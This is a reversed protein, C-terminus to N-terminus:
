YPIQDERPLGGHQLEGESSQPSCDRTSTRHKRRRQSRLMIAVWVEAPTQLTVVQALIERSLSGMLYGQVQQQQAYWLACAMNIFQEEKGDKTVAITALPVPSTPDLHHQMQAGRIQPLVIAKWMLFNGRTLKEQPTNPCVRIYGLERVRESLPPLFLMWHRVGRRVFRAESKKVLACVRSLLVGYLDTCPPPTKYGTCVCARLWVASVAGRADV